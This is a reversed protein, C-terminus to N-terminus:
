KPDAEVISAGVFPFRAVREHTEARMAAVRAAAAIVDVRAAAEARGKVKVVPVSESKGCAVVFGLVIWRVSVIM